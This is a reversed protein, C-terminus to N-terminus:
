LPMTLAQMLQWLAMQGPGVTRILFNYKHYYPGLRFAFAIPASQKSKYSVGCLNERFDPCAERQILL